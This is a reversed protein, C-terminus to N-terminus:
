QYDGNYLISSSPSSVRKSQLHIERQPRTTQAEQLLMRTIIYIKYKYKSNMTIQLQLGHSTQLVCSFNFEVLYNLECM